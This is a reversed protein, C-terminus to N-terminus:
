KLYRFSSQPKARGEAFIGAAQAQVFEDRVIRSHLFTIFVEHVKNFIKIPLLKSLVHSVM